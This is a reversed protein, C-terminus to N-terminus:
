HQLRSYDESVSPVPAERDYDMSEQACNQDNDEMAFEYRERMNVRHTSRDEVELQVQRRPDITEYAPGISSYNPATGGGEHQIVTPNALRLAQPQPRSTLPQAVYNYSSNNHLPVTTSRTISLQLHACM